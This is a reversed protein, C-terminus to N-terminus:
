QDSEPPPEAAGPESTEGAGAAELKKMVFEKARGKIDMNKLDKSDYKFVYNGDAIKHKNYQEEKGRIAESKKSFAVYLPKRYKDPLLSFESDDIRKQEEDGFSGADIVVGENDNNTKIKTGPLCQTDDEGCIKGALVSDGIESVLKGGEALKSVDVDHPLTDKIDAIAGNIGSFLEQIGSDGIEGLSVKLLETTFAEGFVKKLSQVDETELTGKMKAMVLNFEGHGMDTEVEKIMENWEMGDLGIFTKCLLWLRDYFEKEATSPKFRPDSEDVNELPPKGWWDKNILTGGIVWFRCLKLFLTKKMWGLDPIFNNVMLSMLVRHDELTSIEKSEKRANGLSEANDNMNKYIKETIRALLGFTKGAIAGILPGLFITTTLAVGKKFFNTATSKIKERHKQSTTMIKAVHLPGACCVAIQMEEYKEKEEESSAEAKKGELESSITEIVIDSDQTQAKIAGPDLPKSNRTLPPQVQAGGFINKSFRKKSFKKRKHTKRVRKKSFCKKVKKKKINKKKTYKIM